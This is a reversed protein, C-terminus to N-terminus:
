HKVFMVYSAFDPEITICLLLGTQLNWVLACLPREKNLTPMVKLFICDFLTKGSEVSFASRQNTVVPQLVSCVKVRSDMCSAFAVFFREFAM